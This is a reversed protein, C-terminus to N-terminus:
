SPRFARKEARQAADMAAGPNGIDAHGSLRCNEM